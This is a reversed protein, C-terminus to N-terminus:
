RERTGRGEQAGIGGPNMTGEAEIRRRARREGSRSAGASKAQPVGPVAVLLLVGVGAELAAGSVGAVLTSGPEFGVSTLPGARGEQASPLQKSHPSPTHGAPNKQWFDAPPAPQAQAV